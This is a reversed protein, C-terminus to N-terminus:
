GDLLQDLLGAALDLVARETPNLRDTIAEALWDDSSQLHDVLVQRGRETLEITHRRRDRTAPRQQPCSSPTKPVPTPTSNPPATTTHSGGDHTITAM